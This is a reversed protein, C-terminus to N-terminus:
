RRSKKGRRKRRGGEDLQEMTGREFMLQGPTFEASVADVVSTYSSLIILGFVCIVAIPSGTVAVLSAAFASALSGGGAFATAGGSAALLALSGVGATILTGNTAVKVVERVALQYGQTEGITRGIGLALGAVARGTAEGTSGAITGTLEAVSQIDEKTVLVFLASVSMITGCISAIGVTDNGTGYIWRFLFLGSVFLIIISIFLGIDRYEM